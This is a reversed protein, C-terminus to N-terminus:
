PRLKFPEVFPGPHKRADWYREVFTGADRGLPAGDPYYRYAGDLRKQRGGTLALWQPRNQLYMGIRRCESIRQQYHPTIAELVDASIDELPHSKFLAAITARHQARDEIETALGTGM